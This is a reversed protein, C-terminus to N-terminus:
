SRKVANMFERLKEADKIGPEKEVGRAVDVWEPQCLSIAESVNGAHLGGALAFVSRQALLKWATSLDSDSFKLDVLLNQENLEPIQNLSTAVRANWTPISLSCADDYIQAIDLRCREVIAQIQDQTNGRFVGVCPVTINERFRSLQETSIKRPSEAFIFGLASAGERVALEADRENTIGCIKVKPNPSRKDRGTRVVVLTAGVFRALEKAPDGVRLFHEGILAGHYRLSM